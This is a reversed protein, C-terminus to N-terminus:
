HIDCLTKYWGQKGTSTKDALVAALQKKPPQAQILDLLEQVSLNILQQRPNELVQAKPVCHVMVVFEGRLQEMQELVKYIHGLTGRYFSEFEKTLERAVCAQVDEGFCTIMDTLSQLLRHKSEYFIFTGQRAGLDDLWQRRSASKAPPFGYFYFRDSPLGSAVLATTIACPGPVPVVEFGQCVLARVVKFGPDSILPTGADSVLALSKGQSLWQCFQVIRDSENHDQCSFCPTDIAFHRLLRGTHRTDEAAIQDVDQLVQLARHSIDGLHGLPTSVIYLKAPKITM